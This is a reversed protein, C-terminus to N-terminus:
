SKTSTRRYTSRSNGQSILKFINFSNFKMCNKLKSFIPMFIFLNPHSDCSFPEKSPISSLFLFITSHHPSLQCFFLLLGFIPRNTSFYIISPYPFPRFSIQGSLNPFFFLYIFTSDPPLTFFKYILIANLNINNYILILLLNSQKIYKQQNKGNGQKDVTFFRFILWFSRLILM